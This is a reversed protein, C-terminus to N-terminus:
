YVARLAAISIIVKCFSPCKFVSSAFSEASGDAAISGAVADFNNAAKACSLGFGYYLTFIPLQLQNQRCFIM